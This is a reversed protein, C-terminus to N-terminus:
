IFYSKGEGALEMIGNYVSTAENIYHELKVGPLFHTLLLRKAAANEAIQAAERATLHMARICKEDRELLGAECIFLDANRAFDVLEDNLCTDGSYVFKRLNKEICIAYNKFGHVMERFSIKLDGILLKEAPNIEIIELAEKYKLRNFEEIPEAPAYIKIPKEMQGKMLKIDAAYRLIMIDGIHDSHLHSLIIASIEEIDIYQQLRSLVGNGFDLVVKTEGSDLLFGSCAGGAKPYPGNNGLVTLKM